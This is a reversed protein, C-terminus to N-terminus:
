HFWSLANGSLLFSHLRLLLFISLQHNVRRHLLELYVLGRLSLIIFNLIQPIIHRDIQRHYVSFHLFLLLVRKLHHFLCEICFLMLLFLAKRDRLNFIFVLQSELKKVVWILTLLMIMWRLQPVIIINNLFLNLIIPHTFLLLLLRLTSKTISGKPSSLFDRVWPFPNLLRWWHFADGLNLM